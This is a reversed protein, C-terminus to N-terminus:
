DPLPFPNDDVAVVPFATDPVAEPVLPVPTYPVFVLVVPEVIPTSPSADADVEPM